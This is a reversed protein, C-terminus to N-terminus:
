TSGSKKMGGARGRKIATENPFRVATYIATQQTTTPRSGFRSQWEVSIEERMAEENYHHAPSIINKALAFSIAFQLVPSFAALDARPSSPYVASLKEICAVFSDRTFFPYVLPPDHELRPTKWKFCGQYFRRDPLPEVNWLSVDPELFFRGNGGRTDVRRLATVLKEDRAHDGIWHVCWLLRALAASLEVKREVWRDRRDTWNFQHVESDGMLGHSTGLLQLYQDFSPFDPVFEFAGVEEGNWEPGFRAEGVEMLANALFVYREGGRPWRSPHDWFDPELVRVCEAQLKRDVADM